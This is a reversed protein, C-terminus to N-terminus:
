AVGVKRFDKRPFKYHDYFRSGIAGIAATVGAEVLIGAWFRSTIPQELVRLTAYQIAGDLVSCAAMVTFRGVLIDFRFMKSVLSAIYGIVTKSLGNLGLLQGYALDQALGFALGALM